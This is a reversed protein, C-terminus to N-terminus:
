VPSIPSSQTTRQRVLAGQTASRHPPTSRGGWEKVYMRLRELACSHLQSIRSDDLGLRAGIERMTLDEYYYLEIVLRERVPIRGLAQKLCEKQERRYCSLFQHGENDGALSDLLIPAPNSTGASAFPPLWDLGAAKLELVKWHWLELSMGLARAMEHDSPPQELRAELKSYALEAKRNMRRLTRPVSDMERLNDLIAGRIRFKAYHAVKVQRNPDFKQIADILGLIGASILDDLEIHSPLRERMQLSVRKVLPILELVLQNLEAPNKKPCRPIETIVPSIEHATSPRKEWLSRARHRLNTSGLRVPPTTTQIGM